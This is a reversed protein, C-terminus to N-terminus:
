DNSSGPAPNLGELEALLTQVERNEPLAAALKRAYLLAAPIDGAERSVSILMALIDPQNPQRADTDRLVSLAQEVQGASHLGVAYVYSYHANEAALRAASELEPLAAAAGGRRVLLLGLAYHLDAADPLLVLGRRLLPEGIDDRNQMRYLDALNVYAGIFYPDLELAREYAAVAQVAQGQRLHLNGLAVNAAPWDLNLQLSARYEALATALADRHGTPFQAEPVDALIRAAEVRVGRVPDDLLPTAARVRNAPDAPELLGLAAVRVSPDADQLTMQAAALLDPSMYPQLLTVATARVVAPQAPNQALALLGPVSTVGQTAGAHLVTGYHARARWDQGYWEDLAAAAWESSRDAHCQTCANPSGIEQSLDPRPLRIGHDRRADVVMYDQSPMHCEVCQAGPEGARHYHHQSSDYSASDHCRTCLANGQLRLQATHPEHCDQCTVGQQYMRTQLFSAWVFVEERQQGDAHYHPPTLLVPRHSDELPAGPTGSETLTSRSAHCAACVNMTAAAPPEDRRAVKAGPGPLRWAENWRSELRVALGKGDDERYPQEALDAWEVHRSGPGHCSECSVNLESWTTDYSNSAIDYGKRLNTSHCEACQLNWNQYLGTWHLPDQHDIREQPYVHFWRQGGEDRSRADWALPLAQLRGGPFEVLYQQLPWVGFTYRITYDTLRGDAGDTTVIFAGDRQSFRSEIGNYIFTADAFDGLVSTASAEQMALDHHSGRWLRDQEAHCNACVARGVYTASPEARDAAVPIATSDAAPEPPRAAWWLGILVIIAAVSLLVALVPGFRFKLPPAVTEGAEGATAAPRRAHNTPQRNKSM